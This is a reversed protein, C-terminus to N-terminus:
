YTLVYVIHSSVGASSYTKDITHGNEVPMTFESSDGAAVPVIMPPDDPCSITKQYNFSTNQTLQLTQAGQSDTILTGTYGISVTGANTISCDDASGSGSVPFTGSGEVEATGDGNDGSITISVSGSYSLSDSFDDHAQSQDFTIQLNFEDPAVAIPLIREMVESAGMPCSTYYARVVANEDGATFTTTANGAANTTTSGPNVEGPGSQIDFTVSKGTLAEGACSIEAYVSTDEGELLVSRDSRMQFMPKTCDYYNTVTIRVYGDVNHGNSQDYIYDVLVLPADSEQSSRGVRWFSSDASGNVQYQLDFDLGVLEYCENKRQRITGLDLVNSRYWDSFDSKFQTVSGGGALGEVSGGGYGSFHRIEAVLFRGDSSVTGNASTQDWMTTSTNFHYLPLHDGPTLTSGLAITIRVPSRFSLGRPELRLAGAMGPLPCWTAPLTANSPHSHVTITEGQALAGAPIEVKSGNGTEITGGEAGITASASTDGAPDETSTDDARGKEDSSKNAMLDCGFSLMLAILAVVMALRMPKM